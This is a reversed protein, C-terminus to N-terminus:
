TALYAVIDHYADRRTPCLWPFKRGADAPVSNDARVRYDVGAIDNPHIKLRSVTNQNPLDILDTIVNTDPSMGDDLM